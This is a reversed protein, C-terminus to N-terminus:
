RKIVHCSSPEISTDPFKWVKNKGVTNNLERRGGEGRKVGGGLLAGGMEVRSGGGEKVYSGSSSLITRTVCFYCLSTVGVGVGWLVGRDM